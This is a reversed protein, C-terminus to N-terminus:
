NSCLVPDSVKGFAGVRCPHGGAATQEVLYARGGYCRQRVAVQKQQKEEREQEETDAGIVQDRLELGEMRAGGRAHDVEGIAGDGAEEGGRHRAQV